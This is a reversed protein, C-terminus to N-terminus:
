LTKLVASHLEDLARKVNNEKGSSIVVTAGELALRKATALGIRLVINLESLSTIRFKLM